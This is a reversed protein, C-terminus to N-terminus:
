RRCRRGDRRTHGRRRRSARQVPEFLVAHQDRGADASPAMAFRDAVLQELEEVGDFV